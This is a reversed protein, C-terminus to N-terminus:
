EAAVSELLGEIMMAVGPDRRVAADPHGLAEFRLALSAESPGTACLALAEQALMPDGRRMLRLLWDAPAAAGLAHLAALAVQPDDDDIRATAAEPSLLGREALSLVATLRLAARADTLWVAMPRSLLSEVRDSWRPDGLAEVLRLGLAVVADDDSGLAADVLTPDISRGARLCALAVALGARSLRLSPEVAADAAPGRACLVQAVRGLEAADPWRSVAVALRRWVGGARAAPAHAALARLADVGVAADDILRALAALAESGVPEAVAALARLTARRQALGAEAAAALAVLPDHGVLVDLADEAAGRVEAHPHELAALVAAAAAPSAAHGLVWIAPIALQERRDAALALVPSCWRPWSAILRARLAPDGARGRAEFARVAATQVHRDGRDICQLVVELAEPEARGVLLSLAVRVTLPDRACATLPEIPVAEARSQLALLAGIRVVADRHGLAEVLVPVAAPDRLASVVEIAAPPVNPDPDDLLARVAPLNQATVGELLAEVLFRRRPGATASLRAFVQAAAAPGVTRLADLAANRAEIDDGIARDILREVVPARDVARALALAAERRVRWDADGMADLLPDSQRSATAGDMAAIRRARQVGREDDLSV